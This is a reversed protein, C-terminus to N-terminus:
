IRHCLGLIGVGTSSREDAKLRRWFLRSKPARMLALALMPVVPKGRKAFEARDSVRTM